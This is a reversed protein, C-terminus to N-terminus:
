LGFCKELRHTASARLICDFVANSFWNPVSQGLQTAFRRITFTIRINLLDVCAVAELQRCLELVRPPPRRSSGFREFPGTAVGGKLQNKAEAPVHQWALPEPQDLSNLAERALDHSLVNLPGNVDFFCHQCNFNCRYSIIWTIGSIVIAM